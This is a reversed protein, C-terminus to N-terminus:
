QNKIYKPAQKAQTIKILKDAEFELRLSKRTLIETNQREQYVYDWSNRNTIDQLIPSGLLYAIQEKTMGLKIQAIKDKDLINGQQIIPHYSCGWLLFMFSFSFVLKCIRNKLM